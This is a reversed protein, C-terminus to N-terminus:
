SGGSSTAAFLERRLLGRELLEVRARRRKLRAAFDDAGHLEGLEDAHAEEEQLMCRASETFEGTLDVHDTIEWGAARLMAPYEDDTRTFPPASAVVEERDAFSIGPPISIVTFATRGGPRMVRRSSELVARKPELCCLVDSHSVADFSGGAFPLAAGDAVALRCAGALGDAAAREAAAQLGFFPIDTLVVDCGTAKALHLGPWGSGAGIDLLRKGPGLDMLEAVRGAEAMTTWSTGGYDSGCVRREIELRVPAHALARERKFREMPPQDYISTTM